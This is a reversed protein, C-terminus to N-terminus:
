KESDSGLKKVRLNGEATHALTLTRVGHIRECTHALTRVRQISEGTHALTRVGHISECTYALTIAKVRTLLHSQKPGQSHLTSVGHNRKPTHTYRAFGM